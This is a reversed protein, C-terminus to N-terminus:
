HSQLTQRSVVKRASEWDKTGSVKLDESSIPVYSKVKLSKAEAYDQLNLSDKVWGELGRQFLGSLNGSSTRGKMAQQFRSSITDEQSQQAEFALRRHSSTMDTKTGSKQLASARIESTM